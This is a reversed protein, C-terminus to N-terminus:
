IPSVKIIHNDNREHFVAHGSGETIINNEQLKNSIRSSQKSMRKFM